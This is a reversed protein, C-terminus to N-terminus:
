IFNFANLIFVPYAIQPARCIIDAVILYLRREIVTVLFASAAQMNWFLVPSSVKSHLVILGLTACQQYNLPLSSTIGGGPKGQLKEYVGPVWM